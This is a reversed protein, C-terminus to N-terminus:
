SNIDLLHGPCLLPGEDNKREDDISCDDRADDVVEKNPLNMFQTQGRSRYPGCSSQCGDALWSQLSCDDGLDKMVVFGSTYLDLVPQRYQALM